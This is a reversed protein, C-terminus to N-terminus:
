DLTIGIYFGDPLDVYPFAVSDINQRYFLVPFHIKRYCWFCNEVLILRHEHKPLSFRHLLAKLNLGKQIGYLLHIRTSSMRNAIIISAM